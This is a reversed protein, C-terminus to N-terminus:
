ILSWDVDAMFVEETRDGCIVAFAPFLSSLLEPRNRLTNLYLQGLFVSMGEERGGIEYNGDPNLARLADDLLCHIENRREWSCDPGAAEDLLTKLESQKM